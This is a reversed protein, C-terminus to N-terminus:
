NSPSITQHNHDEKQPNNITLERIFIDYSNNGLYGRGKGWYMKCLFFVALLFLIGSEVIEQISLCPQWNTCWNHMNIVWYKVSLLGWICVFFLSVLENIGSISYTKSSQFPKGTTACNEFLFTKYLPGTVNDELFKIHSEWFNQWSKCGYNIFTWAVSTVLGTCIILYTAQPPIDKLNLGWLALYGGFAVAHLTWAYNLRAFNNQIELNKGEWAKEYAMKLKDDPTFLQFYNTDNIPNISSSNNQASTEM